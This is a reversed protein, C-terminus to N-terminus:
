RSAERRCAGLDPHEAVVLVQVVEQVLNLKLEIL